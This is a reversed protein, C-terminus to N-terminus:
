SNQSKWMIVEKIKYEKNGNSTADIWHNNTYMIKINKAIKKKGVVVLADVIEFNEPRHKTYPYNMCFPEPHKKKKSM